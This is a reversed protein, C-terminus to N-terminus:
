KKNKKSYKLHKPLGNQKYEDTTHEQNKVFEQIKIAQVDNKQKLDTNEKELLQNKKSLRHNKAILGGKSQGLNQKEQKLKIIVASKEESDQYIKKNEERITDLLLERERLRNELTKIEKNKLKELANYDQHLKQIEKEKRNIIYRQSNNEKELMNTRKIDELMGRYTESKLIKIM